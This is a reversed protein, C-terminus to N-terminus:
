LSERGGLYPRLVAPVSITRDSNQHNELFAALLRPTAAATNNLTHAFKIQGDADRYKINARRSQWDLLTSCSHTERYTDLSPFWTNIDNMRRKGLGMDGTCCDVVQYPLGLVTLINEASALLKDHWERSTDEDAECVVFQEIKQFEHVRLLGRVDRSSSGIERRFCPSIGALRLPLDKADLIRGTLTGVLGVEATGALWRDDAPLKYIEEPHGPLFGTGVLAQEVVIAPVTAPTFGATVLQDLAMNLIARELMVADGRLSYARAGSAARAGDFDGWGRAEILDVHDLPTFDFVRPTGVTRVIVNDAEDKGIPVDSAPIQPVRLLLGELEARLDQAQQTLTDIAAQVQNSQEKLEARQDPTATRFGDSVRKKEARSEDLQHQTSRVDADLSIIKQVDIDIGKVQAAWEVTDPNDRIFARDLM